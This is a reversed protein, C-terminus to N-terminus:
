NQGSSLSRLNSPMLVCLGVMYVSSDSATTDLVVAYFDNKERIALCQGESLCAVLTEEDARVSDSRPTPRKATQTIIIILIRALCSVRYPLRLQDPVTRCGSVNAHYDAQM